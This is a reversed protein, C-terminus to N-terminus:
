IAVVNREISRIIYYLKNIYLDYITAEYSIKLKRIVRKPILINFKSHPNYREKESPSVCGDSDNQRGLPIKASPLSSLAFPKEAM